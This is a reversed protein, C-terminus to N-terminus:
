RGNTATLKLKQLDYQAIAHFISLKKGITLHKGVGLRTRLCIIILIKSAYFIRRIPSFKYFDLDIIINILFNKLKRKHQWESDFREIPTKEYLVANPIWRTVIGVRALDRVLKTDEGGFNFFSDFSVKRNKFIMAPLFLNGGSGFNIVEGYNMEPIQKWDNLLKSGDLDVPLYPGVFISDSFIRTASLYIDVFDVATLIENDSQIEIIEDDDIFMISEEIRRQSLAMNRANAYGRASLRHVEIDDQISIKVEENSNWVIIIRIKHPSKDRFDSLQRLLASLNPNQGLTCISILILEQKSTTM